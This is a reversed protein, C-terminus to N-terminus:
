MLLIKTSFWAIYTTAKGMEDWYFKDFGLHFSILPIHAVPGHRQAIFHNAKLILKKKWLVLLHKPLYCHWIKLPTHGVISNFIFSLFKNKESIQSSKRLALKRWEEEGKHLQVFVENRPAKGRTHDALM